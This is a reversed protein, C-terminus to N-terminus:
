PPPQRKLALEVVVELRAGPALWALGDPQGSLLRRLGQPAHTQPEVAVADRGAPSAAVICRTPASLRMTAAVGIEPWALEVPPEELRVWTADLDPAMEGMARLDWAGSVPQSASGTVLNDPYVEAARIAVSLPRRFWPHLGLGAPMPEASGNRLALGIRVTQEHVAIRQTVEYQWPWGDGGASVHLSGDDRRTWPRAYVQGHIATGDPFNAELEVQRGGVDTPSADLRNCWPAMVYAGGFFPDARHTAPDDPSHLLDHGFARLRHLRAGIEPLVTVEVAGSSFRLEEV